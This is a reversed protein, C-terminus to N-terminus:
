SHYYNITKLKKLLPGCFFSFADFGNSFFIVQSSTLSTHTSTLWSSQAFVKIRMKKKSMSILEQKGEIDDIWSYRRVFAKFNRYCVWLFMTYLFYEEQYLTFCEKKCSCVAFDVDVSSEDKAAMKAVHIIKGRIVDNMLFELHRGSKNFAHIIREECLHFQRKRAYRLRNTAGFATASCCRAAVPEIGESKEKKKGNKKKGIREPKM